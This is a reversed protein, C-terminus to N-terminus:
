TTWPTRHRMPWAALRRLNRARWAPMMSRRPWGSCSAEAWRYTIHRGGLASEHVGTAPAGGAWETAAGHIEAEDARWRDRLARLSLDRALQGGGFFVVTGGDSPEEAVAYGVVRHGGVYDYRPRAAVGADRLLRVFEGESGAVTAAARVV